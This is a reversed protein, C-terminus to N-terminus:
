IGLKARVLEFIVLCGAVFGGAYVVRRDTHSQRKEIAKVRPIIGEVGHEPDGVLYVDIRDVKSELRDLITKEDPTMENTTPGGTIRELYQCIGVSWHGSLCSRM